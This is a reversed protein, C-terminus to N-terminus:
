FEVDPIHLPRDPMTRSESIEKLLAIFPSTKRYGRSDRVLAHKRVLISLLDNAEKREWGCWDQIDQSEIRDRRLLSEIFDYPFPLNAIANKITDPDALKSTSSIAETFEAYGFSRASYVRDLLKEIYEVHCARVIISKMDDTCSFTRAALAAALRIIKYRASGRDIIPIADTFRQCLRTAADMAYRAVNDDIQVQDVQRTWAWLVLARCIDSPYKTVKGNPQAQIRNIVSLDVDSNATILCMDFRRIDELGGILEKIAEVGYGYTSIERDSRPNSIALIRTRAHTRQKEIKSLEAVGSSRMDTLKSIVEVSTGKLEELIVLRKDHRPIFGWTVFWRGSGMQQLGGLLGAVTANKCELREGLGYYRMMGLATESKGNSSDGVVLAEVWGKVVKHDVRVLLPSHYVLDITLHLDRRQFIRTVHHEFDTYIDDLKEQLAEITWDRPQFMQLRDLDKCEYTSLADQTPDYKSILLTSQQTQPHPYMRGILSYSENMELGDGICVAPQTKQDAARNTIELQPSLRVDEANYYAEPTFSCVRCTKPIGIAGQIADHVRIKPAAIVELIAASEIPVQFRNDSSPWVPCIACERQSKDCAVVVDKPVVYPATDMATVIAVTKVRKGAYRANAAASLHIVEPDDNSLAQKVAPQWLEAMDIVVRMDGGQAVYDNVDGKPFKETDLPLACKYLESAIPRVAACIKEAAEIGHSDVDMCVYVTKGTLMKLLEVPILGEGQTATIAGIGHKNLQAAAVIAKMEGGCIVISSFRLQEIPFWRVAGRGRMNRMKDPGPAGPLYKRVNVVDGYENRIPITVRGEDEGLRYEKILEVTVARDRLAKLLPEAQWIRDHWREVVAPDVVKVDTLNYRSGLEELVQARTRKAHGALLTIIDGSKECGAARCSFVRKSINVNCSPTSDDHFPCRVKVEDDGAWTYRLGYRELEALVSIENPM